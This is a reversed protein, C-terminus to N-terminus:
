EGGTIDDMKLKFSSIGVPVTCSKFLASNEKETGCLSHLLSLPFNEIEGM